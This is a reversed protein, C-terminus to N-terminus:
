TKGMSVSKQLGAELGSAVANDIGSARMAEIAAATVGRYDLFTQVVDAPNEDRAEVLRGTGVLLANVSRRATVPDIGRAIADNMMAMALLAPFAPGTGTTATFYDIDSEKEVEDATGCAELIRRVLGRDEHTLSPSAIWPTYSKRVEAAANPLSRVVKDTQFRATLESLTIGAMFSIVTKGGATAGVAAFDHPRVSAIVVDCRDALEQNDRTWLAGSLFQPRKSRYSLVLREEPVIGERVIAEAFAGGLWGAGGIIGIAVM